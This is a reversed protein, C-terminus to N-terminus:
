RLPFINIVINKVSELEKIYSELTAFDVKQNPMYRWEVKWDCYLKRLEKQVPLASVFPINTNRDMRSRVHESKSQLNHSMFKSHTNKEKYIETDEVDGHTGYFLIYSLMCEMIYGSLYYTENLYHGRSSSKTDDKINKLLQKCIELHRTAAKHYEHYYM